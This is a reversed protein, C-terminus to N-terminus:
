AHNEISVAYCISPISEGQQASLSSMMAGTAAFLVRELRGKKMARLIYGALVSAGCGCGSGGAQVDQDGSEATKGAAFRNPKDANGRSYILLGCDTYNKGLRPGGGDSFLERLLESGLAGLDGTVILDYYDPARGTDNFHASLTDYAAPAMAAGMNNADRIGADVIRGSTFRTIYPPAASEGVIVAGAGTVTWQATPTRQGGYELPFRFQREAGCFHSSTMAAANSAFGGDVAMSALILSEAMTSCAGYVGFFPIGSGRLGFASGVCQNLLDGAFVFDPSAMDAKKLAESLALRQMESEAKEWTEMGFFSDENLIDFEGRLPGEGEKKGGVCASALVSPPSLFAFTREGLKKNIM